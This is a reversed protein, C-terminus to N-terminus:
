HAATPYKWSTLAACCHQNELDAPGLVSIVYDNYASFSIGKLVENSGFSKPLNTIEISPVKNSM